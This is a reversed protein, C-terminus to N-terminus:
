SREASALDTLPVSLVDRDTFVGDEMVLVRDAAAAVRPDHTVMVITQGAAHQARLLTLM